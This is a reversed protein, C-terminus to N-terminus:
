LNVVLSQMGPEWIKKFLGGEKGNFFSGPNVTSSIIYAVNTDAVPFANIEVPTFNNGEIKLSYAPNSPPLDMDVFKSGSLRALSARYRVAKASDAPAGNFFWKGELNELVSRSGPEESIIRTIDAPNVGALNRIRYSNVNSSLGMKLFGDVAYVDKEDALRVYTTMDGRQGGTSMQHQQDKPQNYAFKGIYIEAVTENSANLTILSASSDTVEYKAWADRGKGAYRKTPLDSLQKLINKVVNSDASYDKGGSSVMWKDGILKLDVPGEKSKPDKILIETITAVDFSLVKNRFTRDDSGAYRVILYIIMLVALIIMLMWSKFRKFM